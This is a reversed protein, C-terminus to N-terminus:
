PEALVRKSSAVASPASSGNAQKVGTPQKVPTLKALVEQGLRTLAHVNERRSPHPVLEILERQRLDECVVSVTSKSRGVLSRLQEQNASETALAAMVCHWVDENEVERVLREIRRVNEASAFYGELVTTLADFSARTVSDSPAAARLARLRDYSASLAPEDRAVLWEGLAYAVARIDDRTSTLSLRGLIFDIRPM